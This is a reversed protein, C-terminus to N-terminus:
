RTEEVITEPARGEFAAGLMMTRAGLSGAAARMPM